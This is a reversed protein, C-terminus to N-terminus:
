CRPRSSSRSRTHPTVSSSRSRAGPRVSVSRSRSSRESATARGSRGSSSRCGGQKWEGEKFKGDEYHMKGQGNPIFQEDVQGTYSGKRGKLDTWMMNKVFIGDQDKNHSIAQEASAQSDSTLSATDDSEKSSMVNKPVVKVPKPPAAAAIVKKQPESKKKSAELKIRRLEDVCCDPCASMLIKWGRGLIKKKRLRVHPHRVCRGKKDYNNTSICMDEDEDDNDFDFDPTEQVPEMIESEQFPVLASMGYYPQNEMVSGMFSIASVDDSVDRTM